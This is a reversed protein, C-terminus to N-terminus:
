CSETRLMNGVSWTLREPCQRMCCGFNQILLLVELLISPQLAVMQSVNALPLSERLRVCREAMAAPDRLIDALLAPKM